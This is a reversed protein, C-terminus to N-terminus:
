ATTPESDPDGADTAEIAPGVSNAADIFRAILDHDKIGPPGDEVGGAVDVAWPSTVEIATGVNEPTLGGAVITPTTGGRARLLEWDFSEGTGGRSGPRYSDFLHFDTHFAAAGRVEAQSRLRFSKIVRCGTRRAIESCFSPGEDGHLQVLTLGCRDALAGIRGLSSNVFVGAVETRRKMAAGILEAEADEICRPSAPHFNLGIAWAGAQVAAEADQLRTIGCIKTRMTLCSRLYAWPASRRLRGASSAPAVLPSEM